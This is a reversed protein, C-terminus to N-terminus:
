LQIVLKTTKCWGVTSEGMIWSKMISVNTGMAPIFLVLDEYNNSLHTLYSFFICHLNGKWMNQKIIIPWAM